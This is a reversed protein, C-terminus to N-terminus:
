VTHYVQCSLIEESQRSRLADDDVIKWTAWANSSNSPCVTMSRPHPVPMSLMPAAMRPASWTRPISMSESAKSIAWDLMSSKSSEMGISKILQLMWDRCFWVRRLASVTIM